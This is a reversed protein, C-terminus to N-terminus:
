GTIIQKVPTIIASPDVSELYAESVDARTPVVMAVSSKYVMSDALAEGTMMVPMLTMGHQGNGITLPKELYYFEDDAETLKGVIEQGSTLKFSYIIGIEIKKM